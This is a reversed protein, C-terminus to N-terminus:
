EFLEGTNGSLFGGVPPHDERVQSVARAQGGHLFASAYVGAHAERWCGAQDHACPRTVQIWADVQEITQRVAFDAPTRGSAVGERHREAIDDFYRAVSEFKGVMAEAVDADPIALKPMYVGLSAQVGFIPNAHFEATRTELLDARASAEWVLMSRTIRQSEDLGAEDLAEARSAIARADRIAADEEAVSLEEFRDAYRYEGIMHAWTPATRLRYDYYDDSLQDLEDSM